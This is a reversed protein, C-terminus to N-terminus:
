GAMEKLVNLTSVCDGLASHDGAPLKPWKYSRHYSNWDGVFRAYQEMACDPAFPIVPLGYLKCTSALIPVDFAANYILVVSASQLIRRIAVYHHKFFPEDALIDATLGHVAAAQPNIELSPKFRSNYVEQGNATIMALEIVEGKFDTTETDLILIDDRGLWQAAWRSAAAKDAAFDPGSRNFKSAQKMTSEKAKYGISTLLGRKAERIAEVDFPNVLHAEAYTMLFQAVAWETDTMTAGFRMLQYTETAAMVFWDQIAQEQPTYLRNRTDQNMSCKNQSLLICHKIWDIHAPTLATM